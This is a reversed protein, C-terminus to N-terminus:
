RIGPSERGASSLAFRLLTKVGQRWVLVTHSWSVVLVNCGLESFCSQFGCRGAPPQASGALKTSNVGGLDQM